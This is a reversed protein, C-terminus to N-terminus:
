IGMSKLILGGLIAILVSALTGILYYEAFDKNEFEKFRALSKAAIIFGISTIGGTIYLTLVIAREFVGIVMGTKANELNSSGASIKNQYGKEKRYIFEFLKRMLVAGGFIVYLYVVALVLIKEIKLQSFEIEMYKSFASVINNFPENFSFTFVPLLVAITLLHLFQDLVYLFVGTTKPKRRNGLSKLIDIAIHISSVCLSYLLIDSLKYPILFVLLTIFVTIWHIFLERLLLRNKGEAIKDPQFIFDAFIHALISLSLIAM